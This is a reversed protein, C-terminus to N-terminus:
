SILSKIEDISLPPFQRHIMAHCNPCVPRLDKIPDVEYEEGIQSLPQLHHVHIFGEGLEGFVKGFNFGCIFCSTGYHLICRQRANPDREYANISIQRVAGERFIESTNVEEPLFIEEKNVVDLDIENKDRIYKEAFFNYIEEIYVDDLYSLKTGLRYGLNNWTLRKNLTQDRYKKNQSTANLWGRKFQALRHSNPPNRGDREYILENFISDYIANSPQFQDVFHNDKTVWGLLELAEAVEPHMEWIFNNRIAYGISWISWWRYKDDIHKSADFGTADCFLHGLRGYLSNVVPRGGKIGALESLRTATVKRDPAHYQAQLLRLQTDSIRLQIATLGAVYDATSPVKSLKYVRVM